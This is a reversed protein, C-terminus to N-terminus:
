SKHCCWCLSADHVSSLPSYNCDLIESVMSIVKECNFPKNIYGCIHQECANSEFQYGSMVIAKASSGSARIQRILEFGDMGPMRVDTIILKPEIFGDSRWYELYAEASCFCQVQGSFDKLLESLIFSVESQDDIIHIPM